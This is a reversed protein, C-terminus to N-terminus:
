KPWSVRVFRVDTQHRVVGSMSNTYKGRNDAWACYVHNDDSFVRDFDGVFNKYIGQFTPCNTGDNRPFPPYLPDFENTGAMTTGAFLPPFQATSILFNTAFSNTGTIPLSAFVGYTQILHHNTPDNRRDYWAIFLKSADPRVTMAPQWQDSADRALELIVQTPTTTPL